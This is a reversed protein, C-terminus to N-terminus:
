SSSKVQYRWMMQAKDQYKRAILKISFVPPGIFSDGGLEWCVSLGDAAQDWDADTHGDAELILWILHFYLVYSLDYSNFLEAQLVPQWISIIKGGPLLLIAHMKFSYRSFREGTRGDSVSPKWLGAM